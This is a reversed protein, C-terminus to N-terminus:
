TTSAVPGCPRPGCRGDMNPGPGEGPRHRHRGRGPECAVHVVQRSIQLPNRAPQRARTRRRPTDRQVHSLDLEAVILHHDSDDQTVRWYNAIAPVLPTSVLIRDCRIPTSHHGFGATPARLAAENRQDSLFAAVDILGAQQLVRAAAQDDPGHRVTKYGPLSEWDVPPDGLGPDNFDGALVAWGNALDSSARAEEERIAPNFPAFHTSALIVPAEIGEVQCEVRAQSHWFPAHLEHREQVVKVGRHPRVFVVLNCDHRPAPALYGRMGLVKEALHLARSGDRLWYKGEQISVADLDLDALRKLQRLLRSADGHDLGGNLLNYSAIKM